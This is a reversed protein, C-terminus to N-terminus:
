LNPSMALCTPNQTAPFVSGHSLDSLYGYSQNLLKGTVTNDANSSIYIYKNSPDEVICVPSSGTPYPNNTSDSLTQLQGTSNITFASISSATTSVQSSIGQNIVYLYKGNASTLSNVPISNVAVNATQSGAVESLTCATGTTQYSHVQNLGGDTLFINSGTGTNISTMNMGSGPTGNYGPSGLFQQGTTAVTLTGTSSNIVYPFVSTGSLTYLCGGGVKSMVPNKGVDFFYTPTNNPNLVATNPVITLVGTDSAVSFATIAGAGTTAYDPSYKTLVYLYNGTSDFQLYIPDTGQPQFTNEYTLEGGGGVSFEAISSGSFNSGTGSNVVYVFRGGPKVVLMQPNTGGSTFPSHLIATLNGTYDDIKYGTIQNYYTGLVWLYGITGGGCATMGLGLAASAVLATVIRGIKSFTM